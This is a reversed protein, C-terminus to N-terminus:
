TSSFTLESLCKDTKVPWKQQSIALFWKVKQTIHRINGMLKLNNLPPTFGLWSGELQRIVELLLFNM